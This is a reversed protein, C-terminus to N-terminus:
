EKPYRKVGKRIANGPRAAALDDVHVRNGREDYLDGTATNVRAQSADQPSVYMNDPIRITAMEHIEMQQYVWSKVAIQAKEATSKM